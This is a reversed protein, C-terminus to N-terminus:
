GVRPVPRLVLSRLEERAADSLGLRPLDREIDEASGCGELWGNVRAAATSDVFDQDDPFMARFGAMVGRRSRLRYKQHYDEARYFRSLPEIATHAPGIMAEIRSKSEEATRHEEATRYFVASRYQGSHAAHRADHSRWFVDLLADYDIV